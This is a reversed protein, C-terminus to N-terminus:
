VWPSVAVWPLAMAGRPLILYPTIQSSEYINRSLSSSLQQLCVSLILFSYYSLILTGNGKRTPRASACLPFPFVEKDEQQTPKSMGGWCDQTLESTDSTRQGWVSGVQVRVGARIPDDASDPRAKKEQEQCIETTGQSVM